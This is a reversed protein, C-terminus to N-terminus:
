NFILQVVGNWGCIEGKKSPKPEDSTSGYASHITFLWTMTLFVEHNWENYYYMNITTTGTRQFQYWIQYDSSAYQINTMDITHLRCSTKAFFVYGCEKNM